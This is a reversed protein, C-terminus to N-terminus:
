PRAPPRVRTPLNQDARLRGIDHGYPDTAALLTDMVGLARSIRLVNELSAGNGNELRLLTSVSVGAREAVQAATLQRLKRWASLHEGFTRMGRSVAPSPTTPM